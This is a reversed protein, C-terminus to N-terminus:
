VTFDQYKALVEPLQEVLSTVSFAFADFIQKRKSADETMEMDSYFKKKITALQRNYSNIINDKTQALDGQQTTMITEFLKQHTEDAGKAKRAATRAAPGAGTLMNKLVAIQTKIEGRKNVSKEKFLQKTLELMKKKLTIEDAKEGVAARVQEEMQNYRKDAAEDSSERRAPPLAVIIKKEPALAEPAAPATPGAGETEMRERAPAEPPKREEAEKPAESGEREIEIEPKAMEEIEIEKEVPEAPRHEFEIEMKEPAAEPAEKEIHITEKSVEEASKLTETTMEKLRTEVEKTEATPRPAAPAADPAGAKAGEGAAFIGRETTSIIKQARGYQNVLDSYTLDVYDRPELDLTREVQVEGDYPAYELLKKELRKAEEISGEFTDGM